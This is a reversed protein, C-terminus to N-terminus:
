TRTRKELLVIVVSVYVVASVKLLVFLGFLKQSGDLTQKNKPPEEAPAVGHVVGYFALM